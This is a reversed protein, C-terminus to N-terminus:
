RRQRSLTSVTFALLITLVASYSLRMKLEPVIYIYLVASSRDGDVRRAQSPNSKPPQFSGPSKLLDILVTARTRLENRPDSSASRSRFRFFRDFSFSAKRVTTIITTAPAATAPASDVRPNVGIKGEFGICDEEERWCACLAAGNRVARRRQKTRKRCPTRVLVM